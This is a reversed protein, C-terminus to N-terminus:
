SGVFILVEKARGVTAAESCFHEKAAKKAESFTGSVEFKGLGSFSGCHDDMTAEFFWLGFGKPKKGHALEFDQSDFKVKM